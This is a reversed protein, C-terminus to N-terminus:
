QGPVSLWGQAASYKFQANFQAQQRPPLSRVYSQLEKLQAPGMFPISMILPSTNKQFNNKFAYYGNKQDAPNGGSQRWSQAAESLHQQYLQNGLTMAVTAQIGGQTMTKNPTIGMAAGLKADSSAGFGTMNSAQLMGTAKDLIQTADTTENGLGVTSALKGIIEKESAGIGTFGAKAAAGIEYLNTLAQATNNGANVDNQFQTTQDAAIAEASQVTGPAVSVPGNSLIGGGGQTNPAPAPQAGGQAPQNGGIQALGQSGYGPPPTSPAQQAPPAGSGGGVPAFSAQPTNIGLQGPTGTVSTGDPGTITQPTSLFEPSVGKTVTGVPAIQGTIPNEAGYITKNGGDMGVLQPMRQEVTAAQSQLAAEEQSLWGQPDNPDYSQVIGAMDSPTVGLSKPLSSIADIVDGRSFTGKNKLGNLVGAFADQRAKFLSYDNQLNTQAQSQNVLGKQAADQADFAAGKDGALLANFKGYDVKGTAPDIAKQFDAGAAQQAQLQQNQLLANKAGLWEQMQQPGTNQAIQSMAGSIISPDLLTNGM